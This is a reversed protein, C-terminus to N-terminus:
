QGKAPASGIPPRTHEWERFGFVQVPQTTTSANTPDRRDITTDRLPLRSGTRYSADPDAKPPTPAVQPEVQPAVQPAVVTEQSQAYGCTGSSALIAALVSRTKMM